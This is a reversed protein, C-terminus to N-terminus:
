LLLLLAIITIISLINLIMYIIKKIDKKEKKKDKKKGKEKKNNKEISEKPKMLTLIVISSSLLLIETITLLTESLSRIEFILLSFCFILAVSNLLYSWSSPPYNKEFFVLNKIHLVIFLFLFLFLPSQGEQKFDSSKLTITKDNSTYIATINRKIYLAELFNINKEKKVTWENNVIKNQDMIALDISREIAQETLHDLKKEKKIETLIRDMEKDSVYLSRKGEVSIPMKKNLSLVEIKEPEAQKSKSISKDIVPFLLMIAIILVAGFLFIKKLKEM